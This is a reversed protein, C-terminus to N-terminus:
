PIVKEWTVRGPDTEQKKHCECFLLRCKAIEAEIEDLNYLASVKKVKHVDGEGPTHAFDFCMYNRETVKRKCGCACIGIALKKSKILARNPKMGKAAILKLTTASFPIAHGDLGHLQLFSRQRHCHMHAINCKARELEMAPVGGLSAAIKLDSLIFLKTEQIIHDFEIRYQDGPVFEEDCISCKKGICEDKM